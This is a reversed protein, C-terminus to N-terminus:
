WSVPFARANRSREPLQVWRRRQAGPDWSGSTWTRRHCPLDRLTGSWGLVLARSVAPPQASSESSLENGPSRGIHTPRLISARSRGGAECSHRWLRSVARGSTAHGEIRRVGAARLSPSGFGGLQRLHDLSTSPRRIAADSRLGALDCVPVQRFGKGLGVYSRHSCRRVITGCVAFATGMCARAVSDGRANPDGRAGAPTRLRRWGSLHTAGADGSPWGRAARLEPLTRAPIDRVACRRVPTRLGRGQRATRFLRRGAQMGEVLSSLQREPGSAQAVEGECSSLLTMGISASASM